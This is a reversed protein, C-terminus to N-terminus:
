FNKTVLLFTRLKSSMFDITLLFLLEKVKSINLFSLIINKLMLGSIRFGSSKFFFDNLIPIIAELGIKTLCSKVDAM